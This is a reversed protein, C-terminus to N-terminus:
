FEECVESLNFIESMIKPLLDIFWRKEGKVRNFNIKFSGIIAYRDTCPKTKGDVTGASIFSQILDQKSFSAAIMEPTKIM